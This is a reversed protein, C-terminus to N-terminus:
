NIKYNFTKRHFSSIGFQKIAEKHKKTPYGKNEHWKYEPLKLHLSMMFDDRHTKALISAAAISNYKQDGKIICKHPIKKYKKFKNGDVIILDIDTQIKKISLHMAQISSNLINHKEIQRESVKSVSWYLAEKEIIERLINRSKKNLKKSDNLLSHKFKKPLIVAAAFVPGALCGRGAEDCGCIIKQTNYSKLM